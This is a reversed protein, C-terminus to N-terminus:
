VIDPDLEFAKELIENSFKRYQSSTYEFSDKSFDIDLKEFKKDYFDSGQIGNGKLQRTYAIIFGNILIVSLLKSNNQTWYSHFRKKVASFYGDLYEACFAIYADLANQNEAAIANKNGPWYSYFSAKGESPNLTVLYRLAFKVISAVKIKSDDVLSLEFMNLFVKKKNLKSIVRRAIGIDSFPNSIMEIHLLVDPPVVKANSNIDVFIQSQIQAREMPSMEQPFVLGTVLLHLKKRLSAIQPELSDTTPGEYHAYIRHQGDIVCISNWEKYLELSCHQNAGIQDLSVQNGADDCFRVNDPLAVIINNFFAEGKGALFRRIKRIKETEVLRQYLWAHDEWNDKRLVYCTELLTEASIMFSVIRVDNQLGTFGEPHIIPLNIEKKDAGSSDQGVDKTSLALFRFIEYRSSLRLSQTVKYFYNLVEPEIFRITDYLKIEDDTLSL